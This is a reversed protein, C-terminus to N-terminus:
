GGGLRGALGPTRTRPAPTPAPTEGNEIEFEVTEGFIGYGARITLLSTKERPKWTLYQVPHLANEERGVKLGELEDIKVAAGTARIRLSLEKDLKVFGKREGKVVIPVVRERRREIKVRDKRKSVRVVDGLVQGVQDAGPEAGHLTANAETLARAVAAGDMEFDPLAALGRLVATTPEPSALSEKVVRTFDDNASAASSLVFVLSLVAAWRM